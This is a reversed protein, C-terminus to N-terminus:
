RLRGVGEVFSEGYEDLDLEGVFVGLVAERGFPKGGEEGRESREAIETATRILSRGEMPAFVGLGRSGVELLQAAQAVLVVEGGMGVSVWSEMPMDLSKATAMSSPEVVTRMPVAM